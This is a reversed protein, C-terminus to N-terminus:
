RQEVDCAKTLLQIGRMAVTSTKTIEWNVEALPFPDDDGDQVFLYPGEYFFHLGRPPQYERYEGPGSSAVVGTLTDVVRRVGVKPNFLQGLAVQNRLLTGNLLAAKTHIMKSVNLHCPNFDVFVPDGEEDIVPEGTAEYLRVQDPADKVLTEDMFWVRGVAAFNDVASNTYDTQTRDRVYDHFDMDFQGMITLPVGGIGWRNQMEAIAVCFIHTSAERVMAGKIVQQDLEVTDMKQLMRIFALRNAPAIIGQESANYEHIPVLATQEDM